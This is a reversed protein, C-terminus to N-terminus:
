RLAGKDLHGFNWGGAAGSGYLARASRSGLTSLRIDALFTDDHTTEDLGCTSHNGHLAV